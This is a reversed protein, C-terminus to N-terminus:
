VNLGQNIQLAGLGLSTASGFMTAFIALIDIGKGVPGYVRDGLLPYFATSILNPMGKRFCFYGLALGAVSYLAWPHLAWHFYSYEMAVRAADDTGPKALGLPPAALHSIPEAVGFFMLGIGMGASFMMAIWSVTKFEPRDVDRGLRLRGYPSVALFAVFILFGATSLVFLWGLNELLWSLVDGVVTALDDQFLVGVLVFAVSIGAAIAFVPTDIRWGQKDM